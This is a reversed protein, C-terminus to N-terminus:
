VTIGTIFHLVFLVFAAMGSFFGITALVMGSKLWRVNNWGKAGYVVSFIAPTLLIASALITKLVPALLLLLFSSFFMITLSEAFNKGEKVGIFFIIVFIPLIVFFIVSIIINKAVDETIPMSFFVSSLLTFFISIMGFVFAAIAQGNLLKTQKPQTTEQYNENKAEEDSSNYSNYTYDQSTDYSQSHDQNYTQEYTSYNSAREEKASTSEWRFPNDEFHDVLYHYAEIIEKTKEEAIRKMEPADAYYHDPHYRKLMNRYANKIEELSADRSIRLTEYPDTM